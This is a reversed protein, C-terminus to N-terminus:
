DRICDIRLKKKEIYDIFVSFSDLYNKFLVELESTDNVYPNNIYCNRIM